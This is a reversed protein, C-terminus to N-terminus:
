LIIKNVAEEEEYEVLTVGYGPLFFRNGIIIGSGTFRSEDECEARIHGPGEQECIHTSGCYPCRYESTGRKRLAVPKNMHQQMLEQAKAPTM